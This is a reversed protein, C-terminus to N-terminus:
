YEACLCEACLIRNKYDDEGKGDLRYSTPQLVTAHKQNITQTNGLYDSLNEPEQEDCYYRILRGSTHYGWVKSIKFEEISEIADYKNEIGERQERKANWVAKHKNVGSVTIELEGEKTVAYKKAGWTIFKDYRGEYDFHGLGEFAKPDIKHRECAKKIKTDVEKNYAEVYAFVKSQIFEATKISDTDCYIIGEDLAIIARWLNRRAYASVWVGWAFNLLSHQNTETLKSQMDIRQMNFWEDDTLSMDDKRNKYPIWGSPYNDPDKDIDYEVPDTVYKTVCCGYLGNIKQKVGIRSAEDVALEEEEEHTLSRAAKIAKIEKIKHGLEEKEIFLKELLCIIEKPLYSKRARQLNLVEVQEPKLAYAEKVTDWDPDTLWCEYEGVQYVRGNDDVLTDTDISLAKSASLYTNLLASRINHLRVHIKYAYKETNEKWWDDDWLIDYEEVEYFRSCPFREMVMVAPYSSKFDHSDVNKLMMGKLAMNGHTYGGQYCLVLERYKEIDTESMNGIYAYWNKLAMYENRKNKTIENKLARRVEGTQTLPIDWITGYEKAKMEIYDGLVLCDYECYCLEDKSLPTIPLRALNYDLKGVQKKHELNFKEGVMELAMMNLIYADRFEVQYDSSKAYMAKRDERAFVDDFKIVNIIYQWDYPLNQVFVLWQTDKGLISHLTTMFEKLEDLERGYYVEDLVKMMWIYCVGVKKCTKYYKDSKKYDFSHGQAYVPQKKKNNIKVTGKLPIFYSSAETDFTFVNYCKTVTKRTKGKGKVQTRIDFDLREKNFKLYHQM